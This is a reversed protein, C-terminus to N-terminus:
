VIVQAKLLVKGNFKFGVRKVEKIPTGDPVISFPAVVHEICNFETVDNITDIGNASLCEIVRHQLLEILQLAEPDQIRQSYSDFEEIMNTLSQLLEMINIAKDDEDNVIIPEVEPAISDSETAASQNKIVFEEIHDDNNVFAIENPEEEVQESNEKIVDEVLQEQEEEVIEPPTDIYVQSMYASDDMSSHSEFPDKDYSNENDVGLIKEFIDFLRSM